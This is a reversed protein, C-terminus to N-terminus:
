EKLFDNLAKEGTQSKNNDGLMKFQILIVLHNTIAGSVQVFIFFIIKKVVSAIDYLIRFNCDYYSINLSIFNLKM